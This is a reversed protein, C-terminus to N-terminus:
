SCRSGEAICQLHDLVSLRTRQERGQCVERPSLSVRAFAASTGAGGLAAAASAPPCAGSGPLGQLSPVLKRLGQSLSFVTGGFSWMNLPATGPAAPSRVMGM